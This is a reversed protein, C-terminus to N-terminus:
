LGCAEQGLGTGVSLGDASVRISAALARSGCDPKGEAESGVPDAGAVVGPIQM